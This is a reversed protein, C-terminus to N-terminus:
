ANVPSSEIPPTSVTRDDCGTVNTNRTPGTGSAATSAATAANEEGAVPGDATSATAAREAPMSRGNLM